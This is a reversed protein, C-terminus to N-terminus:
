NITDGLIDSIDVTIVVQFRGSPGSELHVGNVTLDPNSVYREALRRLRESVSMDLAGENPAMDMQVQPPDLTEHQPANGGNEQYQQPPPEVLSMFCFIQSCVPAQPTVSWAPTSFDVTAAIGTPYAGGVNRNAYPVVTLSLSTTFHVTSVVPPSSDQYQITGSTMHYETCRIRSCISCSCGQIAANTDAQTTNQWQSAPIAGDPTSPVYGQQHPTPWANAM